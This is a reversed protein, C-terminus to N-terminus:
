KGSYYAPRGLQNLYHVNKTVLCKKSCKDEATIDDLCDFGLSAYVGKLTDWLLESYAKRQIAECESSIFDFSMQGALKVEKAKAYLYDLEVENYATGIHKLNVRKGQSNRFEVQVITGGNQNEQRRIYAPM